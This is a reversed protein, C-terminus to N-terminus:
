EFTTAIDFDYVELGTVECTVHEWDSAMRNGCKTVYFSEPLEIEDGLDKYLLCGGCSGMNLYDRVSLWWVKNPKDLDCVVICDDGDEVLVLDILTFRTSWSAFHMFNGMMERNKKIVEKSVKM